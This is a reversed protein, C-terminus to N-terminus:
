GLLWRCRIVMRMLWRGIPIILLRNLSVQSNLSPRYFYKDLGPRYEQGRLVNIESQAQANSIQGLSDEFLLNEVPTLAPHAANAYNSNYYQQHFLYEEVNIYDNSSLIPLYYLNPKEGVTQSTNFV